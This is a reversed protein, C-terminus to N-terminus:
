AERLQKMLRDAQEETKIIKHLSSYPLKPMKAPMKGESAKKLLTEIKIQVPDKMDSFNSNSSLGIIM